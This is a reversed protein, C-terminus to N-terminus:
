WKTMAPCLGDFVPTFARTDRGDRNIHCSQTERIPIAPVLGAIVTLTESPQYFMRVPAQRSPLCQGAPGPQLRVRRVANVDRAPALPRKGPVLIPKDRVIAADAFGSTPIEHM